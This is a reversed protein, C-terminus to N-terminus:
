IMGKGNKYGWHKKKYISYFRFEQCLRFSGPFGSAYTGIQDCLRCKGKNVVNWMLASNVTGRIHLM